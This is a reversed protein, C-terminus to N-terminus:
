GGRQQWRMRIPAPPEVEVPEPAAEVKPEAQWRHRIPPNRLVVVEPPPPLPAAEAAVPEARKRPM